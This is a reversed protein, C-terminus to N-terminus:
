GGEGGEEERGSVGPVARALLMLPGEKGMYMFAM